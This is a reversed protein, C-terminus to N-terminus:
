GHVLGPLTVPARSWFPEAYRVGVLSGLYRDRAELAELYRGHANLPTPVVGPGGGFQSKHAQLAKRKAEYTASVDVLFSPRPPANVFYFVLRDIRHPEGTAPFRRLAAAHCARTVLAAAETHDPHRDDPHPACVVRPRLRRIAAVLARVNETTPGLAGDHLGLNDRRAVGLCRAAEAAEELREEPTGNSSLEGRCLDLIAVQRGQAAERALAGGMGIEVDDPHPGVALVDVAQRVM